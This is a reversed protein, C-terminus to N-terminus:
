TQRPELGVLDAFRRMGDVADPSRRWPSVILRSVGLEEWRRVDDASTVPGGLCIQFAVTARDHERRLERLRDIQKPASEFTHGM